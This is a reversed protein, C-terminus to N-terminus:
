AAPEDARASGDDEEKFKETETRFDNLMSDDANNQVTAAKERPFLEDYAKSDFVM